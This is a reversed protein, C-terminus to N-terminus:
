ITTLQKGIKLDLYNELIHGVLIKLNGKLNRGRPRMTLYNILCVCERLIEKISGKGYKINLKESFKKLVNDGYGSNHIKRYDNVLKGIPWYLNILETNVKEITNTILSDAKSVLINVDKEIIEKKFVIETKM